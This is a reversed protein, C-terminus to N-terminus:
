ITSHGTKSNHRRCKRKVNSCTMAALPL